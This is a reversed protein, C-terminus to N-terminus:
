QIAKENFCSLAKEVLDCGERWHLRTHIDTTNAVHCTEKALQEIREVITM